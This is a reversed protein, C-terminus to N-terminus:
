YSLTVPWTIKKKTITAVTASNKPGASHLMETRNVHELLAPSKGLYLTDKMFDLYLQHIECRMIYKDRCVPNHVQKAGATAKLFIPIIFETRLFM